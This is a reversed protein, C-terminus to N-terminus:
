KNIKLYHGWGAIPNISQPERDLQNKAIEGRRRRINSTWSLEGHLDYATPFHANSYINIHTCLYILMHTISYM